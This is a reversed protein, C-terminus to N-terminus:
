DEVRLGREHGVFEIGEHEIEVAAAVDDDAQAGIERGAMDGPDLLQHVLAKVVIDHEV